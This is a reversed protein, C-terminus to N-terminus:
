WSRQAGVALLIYRSERFLTNPTGIIKEDLGDPLLRERQSDVVVFQREKTCHEHSIFPFDSSSIAPMSLRSVSNAWANQQLYRELVCSRSFQRTRRNLTPRGSLGSDCYSLVCQSPVVEPVRHTAQSLLLRHEETSGTAADPKIILTDDKGFDAIGEKTGLFCSGPM